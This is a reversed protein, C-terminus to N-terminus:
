TLWAQSGEDGGDHGDQDGEGRALVVLRGRVHRDLPDGVADQGVRARREDDVEPHGDVLAGHDDLHGEVVDVAVAVQGVLAGRRLRQPVDELVIGGLAVEGDGGGELVAVRLQTEHRGARHGDSRLEHEEDIGPQARLVAALPV